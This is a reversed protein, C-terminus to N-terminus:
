DVAIRFTQFVEQGSEDSISLIVTVEPEGFGSPVNWTVIGEASVKMGDPGSQPSVRIGGARSRIKMPYEWVTGRVATVPPRSEVFLYDVGDSKLTQELNFQRVILESGGEGVTILVGAAPILFVRQHLPLSSNAALEPLNRIATVRRPNNNTFLTLSATKGDRYMALSFTTSLAPFPTGEIGKVSDSLDEQVIGGKTPFVLSGDGAILTDGHVYSGKRQATVRGGALSATNIGAWGGGCVVATSGDFSVHVNVPGWAGGRWGDWLVEEYNMTATHVLYSKKANQTALIILPSVSHAGMAMRSIGGPPAPITVERELRNLSWRQIQKETRLGIFLKTAGAALAVDSSPLPIYKTVKAASVDFVALQRIKPLHFILLRGGAGVVVDSIAGALPVSRRAVALKPPSLPLMPEQPPLQPKVEAPEESAVVVAFTGSERAVLKRGRKLTLTWQIEPATMPQPTFSVRQAEQLNVVSTENGVRVEVKELGTLRGAIQGDETVVIAEDGQFSIRRVRTLGVVQDGVNIVRAPMVGQLSDGNGVVADVLVQAPPRQASLIRGDVDITGGESVKVTDSLTIGDSSKLEYEATLKESAVSWSQIIFQSRKRNRLEDEKASGPAFQVTPAAIIKTLQSAPAATDTNSGRFRRMIGVVHGSADLVPGGTCVAPLSESLVVSRLEKGRRPLATIRSNYVALTPPDDESYRASRIRLGFANVQQTEILDLDEEVKLPTHGGAEALLLVLGSQADVSMVKASVRMESQSGLGVVLEPSKVTGIDASVYLGREHVCFATATVRENSLVVASARRAKQIVERLTPKDQASSPLVLISTFASILFLRMLPERSFLRIRVEDYREDISQFLARKLRLTLQPLVVVSIDDM